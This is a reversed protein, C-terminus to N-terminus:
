KPDLTSDAAEIKTTPIQKDIDFLWFQRKKTLITMTIVMLKRIQVDKVFHNQSVHQIHINRYHVSVKSQNHTYLASEDNFIIKFV